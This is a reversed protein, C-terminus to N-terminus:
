NQAVQRDTFFVSIENKIGNIRIKYWKDIRIFVSIGNKIGSIRIKCWKDIRRSFSCSTPKVKCLQHERYIKIEYEM